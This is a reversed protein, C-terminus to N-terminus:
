ARRTPPAPRTCSGSWPPARASPARRVELRRATSCGPRAEEQAVAVADEVGVRDVGAAGLLDAARVVEEVHGREAALLLPLLRRTARRPRRGPGVLDRGAVASLTRTETPSAWWPAPRSRTRGAGRRLDDPPGAPRSCCSSARGARTLRVANLTFRIQSGGLRFSTRTHQLRWALVVPDGQGRRSRPRGTLNVTVVRNSAGGAISVTAGCFDATGVCRVTQTNAAGASVVPLAAAVIAGAVVFALARRRPLRHSM